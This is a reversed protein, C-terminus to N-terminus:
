IQSYAIWEQETLLSHTNDENAEFIYVGDDRVLAVCVVLLIGQSPYYGLFALGGERILADLRVVSFINSIPGAPLENCSVNGSYECLGKSQPLFLFVWAPIERDACLPLVYSTWADVIKNVVEKPRTPPKGDTAKRLQNWHLKTFQQACEWPTNATAYKNRKTM